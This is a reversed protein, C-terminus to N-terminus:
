DKSRVIINEPYYAYVVETYNIDTRRQLMTAVMRDKYLLYTIRTQTRAGKSPDSEPPIGEECRVDVYRDADPDRSRIETAVEQVFGGWHKGTEITDIAYEPPPINVM